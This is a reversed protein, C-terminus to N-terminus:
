SGVGVMGQNSNHSPLATDKIFANECDPWSLDPGPASTTRLPRPFGPCSSPPQRLLLPQQLAARQNATHTDTVQDQIHWVQLEPLDSLRTNLKLDPTLQNIVDM